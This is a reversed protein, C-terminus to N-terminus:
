GIPLRNLQASCGRFNIVLSGLGRARAEAMAGRAHGARLPRRLGHCFTIPPAGAPAAPALHIELGIADPLHLARAGGGPPPAAAPGRLAYVTM